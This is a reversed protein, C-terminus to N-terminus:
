AFSEGKGRLKALERKFKKVTPKKVGAIGAVAAIMDAVEEGDAELIMDMDEDYGALALADVCVSIKISQLWAGVSVLEPEPEHETEPESQPPFRTTAAPVYNDSELNPEPQAGLSAIPQQLPERLKRYQGVIFDAAHAVTEDFKGEKDFGLGKLSPDLYVLAPHLIFRNQERADADVSGDQKTPAPPWNGAYLKLPVIPVHYLNAYRLEHFSCTSAATKEGYDEFAFAVMM